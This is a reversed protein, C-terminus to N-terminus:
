QLLEIRIRKSRQDFTVRRTKMFAAGLIVPTGRGVVTPVENAQWPGVEVREKLTGIQVTQQSTRSRSTAKVRPDPVFEFKEDTVVTNALYLVGAFGSDVLFRARKGAITGWVHPVGRGDFDLPVVRPDASPEPLRGREMRLAEAPGDITLLLERFVFFGLIGDIKFHSLDDVVCPVGAFNAEGVRLERLTALEIETTYGGLNGGRMGKTRSISLELERGVETTVLVHGSGTDLLFRYPGKGNITVEVIPWDGRWAFPATAIAQDLRTRSPASRLDVGTCASGLAVAVLAVASHSVASM